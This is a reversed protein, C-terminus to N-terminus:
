HRDQVPREPTEPRSPLIRRLRQFFSMRALPHIATRSGAACWSSKSHHTNVRLSEVLAEADADRVDEGSYVTLLSAEDSLM